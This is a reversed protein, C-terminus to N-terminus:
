GGVVVDGVNGGDVDGGAGGGYYYSPHNFRNDYKSEIDGIAPFNKVFADYTDYVLNNNSIKKGNVVISGNKVSIGNKALVIDIAM